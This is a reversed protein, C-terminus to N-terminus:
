PTHTARAQAYLRQARPQRPPLRRRLRLGRRPTGQGGGDVAWRLVVVRTQGPQRPSPTVGALGAPAAATPFRGRADGM